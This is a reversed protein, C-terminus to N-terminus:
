NEAQLKRWSEDDMAPWDHQRDLNEPSHRIQIKSGVEFGTCLPYVRPLSAGGSQLNGSSDTWKFSILMTRGRADGGCYTVIGTDAVYNTTLAKDKERLKPGLKMWACLASAAIFLSLTTAKEAREIKM